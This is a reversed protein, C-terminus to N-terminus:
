RLNSILLVSMVIGCILCWAIREVRQTYEYRSVNRKAIIFGNYFAVSAIYIIFCIMTLIKLNEIM